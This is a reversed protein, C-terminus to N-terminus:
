RILETQYRLTSQPLMYLLPLTSSRLMSAREHWWQQLLFVIFIVYDSHTNTGKPIWCEIRMWGITMQPRGLEVNNKWM